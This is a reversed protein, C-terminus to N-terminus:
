TVIQIPESNVVLFVIRFYSVMKKIAIIVCIEYVCYIFLLIELVCNMGIQYM